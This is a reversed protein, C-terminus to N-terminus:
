RDKFLVTKRALIVGISLALGDAVFAVLNSTFKAYFPWHYMWIELATKIVAIGIFVAILGLLVKLYLNKVRPLLYGLFLGIFAQGIAWAIPLSGGKLLNSIICGAVGVITASPGLGELLVGFVIYGLDLKIRSILPIIVVTSLVVYLAIGIGLLATKRQRNM